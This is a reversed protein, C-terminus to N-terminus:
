RGQRSRRARRPAREGTPRTVRDLLAGASELAERVRLVDHASFEYVGRRPWPEGFLETVDVGLAVSLRELTDVSPNGQGREIEGIFKYSLGAREGLMEQTWGRAHRLTRVADGLRRRIASTGSM